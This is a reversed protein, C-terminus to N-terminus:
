SDKKGFFLIYTFLIGILGIVSVIIKDVTM